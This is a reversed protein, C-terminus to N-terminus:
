LVDHSYRCRRRRSLIQRFSVQPPRYRPRSGVKIRSTGKEPMYKTNYLLHFNHEPTNKKHVALSSTDSEGSDAKRNSKQSTCNCCRYGVRKVYYLSTHLNRFGFVCLTKDIM